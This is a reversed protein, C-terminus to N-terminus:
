IIAHNGPDMIIIPLFMMSMAWFSKWHQAIEDNMGSWGPRPFKGLLLSLKWLIDCDTEKSVESNEGTDKYTINRFGRCKEVYPKINIRGVEAADKATM